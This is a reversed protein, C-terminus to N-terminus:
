AHKGALKGFLCVVQKANKEWTPQKELITEHARNGIRLRLSPDNCLLDVAIALGIANDPAFLVANNNDTLIKMINPQAPSVIAKGLALYELLKLPSAYAVVASQLAIDFTAVYQAVQNRPVIGTFTIRDSIGLTKAQAEHAPRDLM